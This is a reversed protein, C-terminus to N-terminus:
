LTLNCNSVAIISQWYLMTYNIKIKFPLAIYGEKPERVHFKNRTSTLQIFGYYDPTKASQVLNPFLYNFVLLGLSFLSFIFQM